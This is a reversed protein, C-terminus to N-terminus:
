FARIKVAARDVFRGANACRRKLSPPFGLFLFAKLLVAFGLINHPKRWKPLFFREERTVTFHEIIEEKRLHPPIHPYDM